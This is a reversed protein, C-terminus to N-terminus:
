GCNLEEGDDGMLKPQAWDNTESNEVCSVPQSNSVPAPDLEGVAAENGDPSSPLYFDHVVVVFDHSKSEDEAMEGFDVGSTVRRYQEGKCEAGDSFDSGVEITLDDADPLGSIM